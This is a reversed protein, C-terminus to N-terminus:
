AAFIVSIGCHLMARYMSHRDTDQLGSDKGERSFFFISSSGGHKSPDIVMMQWLNSGQDVM